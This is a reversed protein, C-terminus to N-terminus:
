DTSLGWDYPFPMTGHQVIVPVAYREIDTACEVNILCLKGSALANTVAPGMEDPTRVRFVEARLAAGIQDLDPNWLEGTEEIRYHDGVSRGFRRQAGEIEAQITKNDLVIVVGAIGYETATALSLGTHIFSQDGCFVVVPHDPRALGAGVVGPPGFGMQGFQQNNTSFYPHKLTYFAPLYNMIFGTDCVVATEPDFTNIAESADKVLRSYHLPAQDSTVAPEIEALWASRWGAIQELWAKAGKRSKGSAKWAASLAELGLRADAVMGVETPYVRSIEGPDIDIHILRQKGGFDFFTWGATNLDNFHTGVGIVLDANTAANVAQGTGSRNCVGLSLPHDEAISGKGGFTTAIPIETTEAFDRLADWGRANHIGTSLYVVPREAEGILEVARSVAAPDPAPQAMSIWPSPDSPIEVEVETNQVDLPMYIVVPGPRGSLATKYARMVTALATDPRVTMVAQKTITKFIQVFEDENYRYVEQIGGRGFWKTAGGAMLCLMPTSDYFAEAIGPIANFNGPGVTTCTVPIPPTRRMRWYTDAMHIAHVEHRCRVGKIKAEYELADLLGWNAHGNYFFYHETGVAKLFQAVAQAATMRAM